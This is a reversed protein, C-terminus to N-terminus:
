LGTDFFNCGKGVAYDLSELSEDDDSGTWSGMGWMGFGIESIKWDTRPFIRYLM